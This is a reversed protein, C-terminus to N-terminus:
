INNLDNQTTGKMFKVNEVDTWTKDLYVLRVVDEGKTEQLKNIYLSEKRKDKVKVEYAIIGKNSLSVEEINLIEIRSFGNMNSYSRENLYGLTIKYVINTTPLAIPKLKLWEKASQVDKAGFQIVARKLIAERDKHYDIFDISNVGDFEKIINSLIEYKQISKYINNSFKFEQQSTNNDILGLIMKFKSKTTKTQIQSFTGYFTIPETLHGLKSLDYDKFQKINDLPSHSLFFGTLDAEIKASETFSYDEGKLNVIDKEVIANEMGSFLSFRQSKEVKKKTHNLLKDANEVVQKRSIGFSDFAGVKALIILAGKTLNRPVMRKIFDNLDKFLGNAERELIIEDAISNPLGKVASFGYVISNKEDMSPSIDNMSSNVSAPQIKIGMRRVEALAQNFKEPSGQKQKIFAAMFETPYHAKLYASEYALLSYSVSHSRNFAYQGFAVIGEWLKNVSDTNYGNAIMGEKFKGGLSAMLDAKKKGIAKRLDDAERATFGACEKAITMVSEQYTLLGLTPKLIEEVKTGIFSKENAPIRLAPNNKREAFENHANMGMPGPRYLATIAPIDEFNDPKIKILMEQVGAGALQFIGATEGRQLLEFTKQDDLNSNILSKLDVEINQTKKIFKVASDILDLTDLGLFDMKILGLDECNYYNWQTVTMNDSDRIETPVTNSIPETSIVMGCAHTGKERMRGEIKSASLAVEKLRENTLTARFDSGEVNEVDLLDKIKTGKSASDPLTDSIKQSQNFPIDYITAMSKFSNKSKFPGPTYITAVHDNGYKNRVYDIVKGRGITHLDSDVDPNTGPDIIKISKIKKTM